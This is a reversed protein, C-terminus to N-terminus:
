FLFPIIRYRVRAAYAQYAPDHLLHREEALLRFVQMTNAALYIAFNTWSPNGLLFFAHTLLYGAYMPHRIAGYPGEIKVGRNAPVIGFSRRLTLKAALQLCVGATMGLVVLAAPALMAHTSPRAMLPLAAAGFALLWDFRNMSVNTTSRRLIVFLVTLGEGFLILLFFWDLTVAFAGFMARCFFAFLTLQFLREAASLVNKATIQPPTVALLM